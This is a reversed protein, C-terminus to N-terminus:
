RIITVNGTVPKKGPAPILVFHYSDIPMERGNYTGDWPNTYGKESVYILTGWRNYIEIIAEPYIEIYEIQWVDNAHDGNPTFVTPINLCSINVGRLESTDRFVCLNNDTIELIYIGEFLDELYQGEIGEESWNLDYPPTGGIIEIDIAGDKTDPCYPDTLTKFIEITDPQYITGFTDIRCNNLDTISVHYEGAPISDAKQGTQGINDWLINYSPTGGQPIITIYGDSYTYCTPDTPFVETTIPGPQVVEISDVKICENDDTIELYHWGAPINTITTGTESTNLWRYDFNGMGGYVTSNITADSEGYCTIEKGNYQAPSTLEIIIDPPETVYTTDYHFCNNADSIIVSYEGVFLSDIDESFAGNSWEYNYPLDTVGGSVELEASGNNTAFCFVSAPTITSTILEPEILTIDWNEICANDDTLSINYIGASLNTQDEVSNQLGTGTGTWLYNYDTSVAGGSPQLTISGNEGNFCFINYNNMESLIPDISLSDPQNILYPNWTRSCNISDTVKLTYAGAPIDWISDRDNMSIFGDTTTWEYIYNGIGGTVSTKLFGDSLDYCSIEFGNYESSDILTAILEPPTTLSISTDAFCAFEDTVTLAYTGVPVGTIDKEDSINLVGGDSAVWAYDIARSVDAGIIDINIIGDSEGFCSVDFEKHYEQGERKIVMTPPDILEWNARAICGATDEFYVEIYGASLDSINQSTGLIGYDNSWEYIFLSDPGKGGDVSINIYGDSAGNCTQNYSGYKWPNGSIVAAPPAGVTIWGSRLYCRNADYVQVTYNGGPLDTISYTSTDQGIFGTPGTWFYDFKPTGGLTAVYLEGDLAGDCSADIISDEFALAEPETLTLNGFHECGIVDTIKYDYTGSSLNTITDNQSGDLTWEYFYEDEYYGGFPHLYIEGNSEGFCRIDWDGEYKKSTATDLLTPAIRILVSDQIGKSCTSHEPDDILPSFNYEINQIFESSNVLTDTFGEMLYPGSTNDRIGTLSVSETFFEYKVVGNAAIIQTNVPTITVFSENCIVTDSILITDFVPTPNLYIILTTDIGKDCDPTHGNGEDLFVPKINYTIIRYDRTNNVLTYLQTGDLPYTGDPVIGDVDGVDGASGDDKTITSNITYWKEAGPSLNGNGTTLTIQYDSTDCVVTDTNLDVFIRPTPNVWIRITTDNVNVHDCYPNGFRPDKFVPHFTYTVIQVENTPNILTDSFDTGSIFDYENAEQVGEVAGPNLITLQYKKDGMVIGNESNLDFTVISADCIITDPTIGLSLDPTPNVYIVVTDATGVCSTAGSGTPTIIYIVSDLYNEPNILTQIIKNGDVLTTTTGLVSGPDFVELEFTSGPVDSTIEVYTTGENCLTDRNPTAVAVPRPDVTLRASDSINYYGHRHTVIVRYLYDDMTLNTTSIFLISDDTGSYIGGESLDQWGNGDNQNEQWHFFLRGKGSVTTSFSASEGDCVATDSPQRWFYPRAHGYAYHNGSGSIGLMLSDRFGVTGSADRHTGDLYWDGPGLPGRQIIRTIDFITTDFGEGGLNLDYNTTVFGNEANLSWYGYQYQQFVEVSDDRIPLGISGPDSKIFESILSGATPPVNIVINLPNYSSDSGVPFLYTGITNVGREFKGIVRSGTTSTYKLSDKHQNTLNLKFTGTEVNGLELQLSNSVIVNNLLLIRNEIESGSNNIILNYFITDGSDSIRQIKNGNFQVTSNDRNFVGTNTWNGGINYDGDGGTIGINIYDNQLNIIGENGIIGATNILTDSGVVAGSTVTIAAGENTIVQAKLINPLFLLLSFCLAIAIKKLSQFTRHLPIKTHNNRNQM